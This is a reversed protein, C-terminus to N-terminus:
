RVEIGERAVITLDEEDFLDALIRGQKEVLRILVGEEQDYVRAAEQFATICDWSHTTAFVQIDLRRAVEFVLHWVDPQVSYHLGSEIEDIIFAGEKANVLGLALGFLRNMGEGMSRLSMPEEVGSLKVIPFRERERPMNTGGVLSVREVDPAILQLASLVDSELDTLAIGDWMRGLEFSQLGNASVFVCNANDGNNPIVQRGLRSLREQGGFRIKLMPILDDTIEDPEVQVPNLERRGEEITRFIYWGFDVELVGASDKSPGIVIGKLEPAYRRHFLKKMILLPDQVFSRDRGAVSFAPRRGENRAELIQWITAASGQNFYLCLAELLTSKGVNNKGVILNVRGLREIRLDDFVRFRQIMLSTLHQRWVM